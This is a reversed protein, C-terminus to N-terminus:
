SDRPGYLTKALLAVADAARVSVTASIEDDTFMTVNGSALAPLTQWYASSELEEWAAAGPSAADQERLVIM